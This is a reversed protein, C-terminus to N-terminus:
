TPMTESKRLNLGLSHANSEGRCPELLGTQLPLHCFYEAQVLGPGTEMWAILNLFQLDIGGDEGQAVGGVWLADM